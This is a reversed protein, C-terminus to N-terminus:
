GGTVRVRAQGSSDPYVRGVGSDAPQHFDWGSFAMSRRRVRAASHPTRNFTSITASAIAYGTTTCQATIARLTASVTALRAIRAASASSGLSTERLTSAQHRSGTTSTPRQSSACSLTEQSGSYAAGTIMLKKPDQINACVSAGPFTGSMSLSARRSCAGATMLSSMARYARLTVSAQARKEGPERQEVERQRQERIGVADQQQQAHM